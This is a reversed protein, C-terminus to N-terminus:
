THLAYLHVRERKMVLGISGRLSEWLVGSSGLPVGSGEGEPIGRLSEGRQREGLVHTRM